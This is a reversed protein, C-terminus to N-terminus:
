LCFYKLISTASIVTVSLQTQKQLAHNEPKVMKELISFYVLGKDFNNPFLYISNHQFKVCYCKKRHIAGEELPSNQKKM